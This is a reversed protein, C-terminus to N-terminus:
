KMQQRVDVDMCVDVNMDIAEMQTAEYNALLLLLHLLLQRRNGTPWYMYSNFFSALIHGVRRALLVKDAQWSKKHGALSLWFNVLALHLPCFFPLLM